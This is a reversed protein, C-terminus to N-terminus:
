WYGESNGKVLIGRELTEDELCDADPGACDVPSNLCCEQVSSAKFCIRKCYKTKVIYSLFM